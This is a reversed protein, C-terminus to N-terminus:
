ETKVTAERFFKLHIINLLLMKLFFLNPPFFKRSYQKTLLRLAVNKFARLAM